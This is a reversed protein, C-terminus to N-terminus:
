DRPATARSPPEPAPQRPNTVEQTPPKLQTTYLAAALDIERTLTLAQPHPPHLWSVPGRPTVSPPLLVTATIRHVDPPWSLPVGFPQGALLIRYDPTDPYALVAPPCRRAALLAATEAALSVPVLLAAAQQGLTLSVQHARLTVPWGWHQYTAAAADAPMGPGIQEALSPPNPSPSDVVRHVVCVTCPM